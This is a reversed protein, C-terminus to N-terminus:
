KVTLRENIVVVLMVTVFWLMDDCFQGIMVVSYDDEDIYWRWMNRCIPHNEGPVRTEEVLLDLRCSIVLINKFTANFAMVRFRVMNATQM